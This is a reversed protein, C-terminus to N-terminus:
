RSRMLSSGTASDSFYIIGVSSRPLFTAKKEDKGMVYFGAGSEDILRASVSQNPMFGSDKSFLITVPIPAGGGLSPLIRPYFYTAFLFLLVFALSAVQGWHLPLTRYPEKGSAFGIILWVLVFWVSLGDYEFLKRVFLDYCALCFYSLSLLWSVTSLINKLVPKVDRVSILSAITSGVLLSLRWLSYSPQGSSLYRTDFIFFLGTSLGVCTIFFTQADSSIQIWSKAPCGAAVRSRNCITRQLLIPIATLIFLWIGAAMIRPRFPDTQVFGINLDYTSIILFGCIYAAIGLAAVAKVLADISTGLSASVTFKRQLELPESEMREVM